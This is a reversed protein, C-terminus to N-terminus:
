RQEKVPAKLTLERVRPHYPSPVSKSVESITLGARAVGNPKYSRHYAPSQWLPLRTSYKLLESARVSFILGM